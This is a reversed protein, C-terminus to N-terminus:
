QVKAQKDPLRCTEQANCEAEFSQLVEISPQSRRKSSTKPMKMEPLQHSHTTRKSDADKQGESVASSTDSNCIDSIEDDSSEESSEDSTASSDDEREFIAINQLLL